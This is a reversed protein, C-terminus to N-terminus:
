TSCIYGAKSLAPSTAAEPGNTPDKYISHYHLLPNFLWALCRREAHEMYPRRDAVGKSAVRREHDGNFRYRSKRIVRKLKRRILNTADGARCLWHNAFRM